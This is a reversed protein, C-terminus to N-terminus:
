LSHITNFEQLSSNINNLYKIKFFPNNNNSSNSKIASLTDNLGFKHIDKSRILLKTEYSDIERKVVALFYNLNNKNLINIDEFNIKENEPYIAM